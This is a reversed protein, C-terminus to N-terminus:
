LRGNPRISTAAPSVNGLEIAQVGARFSPGFLAGMAALHGQQRVIAADVKLRRPKGQEDKADTFRLADWAGLAQVVMPAGLPCWFLRVRENGASADTLHERQNPPYELRGWDDNDPDTGPPYYFSILMDRALNNMAMNECYLQITSVQDPARVGWRPQDELLDALRWFAAELVRASFVGWHAPALKQDYGNAFWDMAEAFEQAQEFSLVPNELSRRSKESFGDLEPLAIRQGLFPEPRHDEPEFYVTTYVSM